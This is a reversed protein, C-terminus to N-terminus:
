LIKHAKVASSALANIGPRLLTAQDSHSLRADARYLFLSALFRFLRIFRRCFLAVSKYGDRHFQVNVM